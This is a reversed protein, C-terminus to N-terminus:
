SDGGVSIPRGVIKMTATGSVTIAGFPLGAPTLPEHRWRVEVTIDDQDVVAARCPVTAGTPDSCWVKPYGASLSQGPLRRAIATRIAAYDSSTTSDADAYRLIGVRAGDRAAAKAQGNQFVASGFDILGFVFLLFIPLVLALEVIVVGREGTARRRATRGIM